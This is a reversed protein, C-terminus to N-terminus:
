TGDLALSVARVAFVIGMLAAAVLLVPGREKWGRLVLAGGTVWFIATFDSRITSLGQNGNAALGFDAGQGVPNILFMTGLGIYFLGGLVLLARLATTM